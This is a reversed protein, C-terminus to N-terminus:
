GFSLGSARRHGHGRHGTHHYQGGDCRGAIGPKPLRRNTLQQSHPVDAYANRAVQIAGAPAGPDKDLKRVWPDFRDPADPGMQYGEDLHDNFVVHGVGFRRAAAILRDTEQAIHAEARIQFRLDTM